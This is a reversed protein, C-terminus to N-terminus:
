KKAKTEASIDDGFARKMNLPFTKVKANNRAALDIASGIDQIISGRVMQESQAFNQASKKEDDRMIGDIRVIAFEVGNQVAGMVIEGKKAAFMASSLEQSGQNRLVPQPPKVISLKYKEAAKELGMSKADKLIAEAKAQLRKGIEKRVWANVLEAKVEALPVPSPAIVKDARVAIYSEDAATILDTVDGQGISFAQALAADNKVLLDFPKGTNLDAGQKTLNEVKIVSFGVKQAAAEISEGQSILDDYTTTADTLSQVAAEKKMQVTIEAKGKAEDAAQAEKASTVQYASFALAGKVSGISGVAGKFAADAVAKDPIGDISVDTFTLPAQLGLDKAVKEAADGAKLRKAAEDAKAQDKAVIQVLSRKAPTMLKNKQQDWIKNVENPDINAKALFPELKAVVLTFSRTEPRMLRSKTENYFANVQEDTPKPPEGALNASIPIMTVLRRETAFALTQKSYVEPARFGSTGALLLLQRGMDGLIGKEFEQPTIGNENLLSDYAASSFKGSNPDQFAGIKQIESKVIDPAISIGIKKLFALISRESIMRDLTSQDAGQERAEQMTVQKGSQQSARKLLRDFDRRFEAASIAKGDVIAVQDKGMGSFVDNIGWIAFSVVLLGILVAAVWSRAAKRVFALM